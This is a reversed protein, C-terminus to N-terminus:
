SGKHWKEIAKRGYFNNDLTKGKVTSGRARHNGCRKNLIHRSELGLHSCGDGLIARVVRVIHGAFHFFEPVPCTILELVGVFHGRWKLAGSHLKQGLVLPGLSTYTTGQGRISTLVLLM